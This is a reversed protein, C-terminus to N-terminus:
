GRRRSVFRPDVVRQVAWENLVAESALMHPYRRVFVVGCQVEGEM